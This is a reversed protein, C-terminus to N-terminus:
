RINILFIKLVKNLKIREISDRSLINISRILKLDIYPITEIVSFVKM